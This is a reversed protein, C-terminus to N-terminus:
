KERQRDYKKVEREHMRRASIPRLTLRDAEAKVMFVIFLMDGAADPGIGRWRQEIEPPYPDPRIMPNNNLVFEIESRTVGHKATHELNADDWEFQIPKIENM